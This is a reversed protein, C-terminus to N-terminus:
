FEPFKGEDSYDVALSNFGFYGAAAKNCNSHIDDTLGMGYMVASSPVDPFLIYVDTGKECQEFTEMVKARFEGMEQLTGNKLEKAANYSLGRPIYSIVDYKGIIFVSLVLAIGAPIWKKIKVHERLWQAFCIVVFLITLKVLLEYTYVTRAYRLGGHYGLVVPFATFYQIAFTAPLLLLLKGTSIGKAFIQTKCLLCVAFIVVYLVLLFKNGTVVNWENKWCSMTDRLADAIGYTGGHLTMNNRAFNGKACANILAGVFASVFPVVIIKKKDM